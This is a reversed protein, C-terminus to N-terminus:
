LGLTARLRLDENPLAGSPYWEGAAETRDLAVMTVVSLPLGTTRRGGGRGGPPKGGVVETGDTEPAM